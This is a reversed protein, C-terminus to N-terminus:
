NIPFLLHWNILKYDKTKIIKINFLFVYKNYKLLPPFIVSYLISGVFLLLDFYSCM